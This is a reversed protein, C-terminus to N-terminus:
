ANRALATQFAQMATNYAAAQTDNLGLGISYARMAHEWASAAATGSVNRTFVMYPYSNAGPTTAATGGTAIKVGNQWLYLESSSPRTAILFSASTSIAAENISSVAGGLLVSISPVTSAPYRCQMTYFDDADRSGMFERTTNWTGAGKFAALHVTAPVGMNDPSLGTNLYKSGDGDLGNSEVYDGSFFPGVNTDTTNGYQTGGLSPGRYLPVLCANLRTPDSSGAGGCFLNLRYFKERLGSEANIAECFTNVAAATSASVAGGNAYVRNIWDQADANSVQPALAISWKAALYREVRRSQSETLVGSYALVELLQCPYFRNDAFPEIGAFFSKNNATSNALDAYVLNVVTTDPALRVGTSFLNFDTVNLAAGQYRAATPKNAALNASWWHNGNYFTVATADSSAYASGGLSAAVTGNAAFPASFSVPTGTRRWVHFYTRAQYNTREQRMWQSTGNFSLSTRSNQTGVIPRPSSSPQLMHRGHGSKDAWYGVPDGSNVAPVTGNSNQRLTSADAADLWLALGSVSKPTFTSAPRLTRPSLPM